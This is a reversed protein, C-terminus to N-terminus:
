GEYPIINFLLPQKFVILSIITKLIKGLYADIPGIYLIVVAGIEHLLM